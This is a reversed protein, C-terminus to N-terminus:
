LRALVYFLTPICLVLVTQSDLLADSASSSERQALARFLHLTSSTFSEVRRKMWLIIRPRHKPYLLMGDSKPIGTTHSFWVSVSRLSCRDSLAKWKQSLSSLLFLIFNIVKLSSFVPIFPYYVFSGLVHHLTHRETLTAHIFKEEVFTERRWGLCPFLKRNKKARLCSRRTSAVVVWNISWFLAFFLLLRFFISSNTTADFHFRFKKGWLLIFLKINAFEIQTCRPVSLFFFLMIFLYIMANDATSHRKNNPQCGPSASGWSFSLYFLAFTEM